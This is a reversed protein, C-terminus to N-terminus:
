RQLREILQENLRIFDSNKAEKSLKLSRKASAIAEKNRNLDELILAERYVVFFLAKDTKTVKQIYSLAKPLDMQNEHMFLAAQFYDNLSPGKMTKDISALVAAKTTVEIPVKVQTREWYFELQATETKIDQISIEFSEQLNSTKSTPISFTAFPSQEIYDNWNTSEYPYVFFEWDTANPKVLMTYGGKKISKGALVIDNSFTFKIAANAGLRWFEGFPLLGNEGFIVREKVSPRSYNVEIDTLGVTQKITAIPSLAPTQLQAKAFASFLFITIFTIYTKM